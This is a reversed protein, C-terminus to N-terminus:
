LYNLESQECKYVSLTLRQQGLMKLEPVNDIYRTFEELNINRCVVTVSIRTPEKHYNSIHIIKNCIDQFDEYTVNETLYIHYMEWIGLFGLYKVNNLDDAINDNHKLYESRYSQNAYYADVMMISLIIEDRSYGKNNHTYFSQNNLNIVHLVDNDILEKLLKNDIKLYDNLQKSTWVRYKDFAKVIKEEITDELFSIFDEM